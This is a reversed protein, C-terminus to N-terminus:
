KIVLLIMCTIMCTICSLQSIRPQNCLSSLAASMGRKPRKFISLQSKADGREDRGRKAHKADLWLCSRLVRDSCRVKQSRLVEGM